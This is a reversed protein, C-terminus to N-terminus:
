SPNFKYDRSESFIQNFVDQIHFSKLSKIYSHTFGKNELIIDTFSDRSTATLEADTKKAYGILYDVLTYVLKEKVKDNISLMPKNIIFLNASFISYILEGALDPLINKEDDFEIIHIMGYKGSDKHLLNYVSGGIMVKKNLVEKGFEAIHELTGDEYKRAVEKDM